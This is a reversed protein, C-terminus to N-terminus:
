LDGLSFELFCSERPPAALDVHSGALQPAQVVPVIIVNVLVDNSVLEKM